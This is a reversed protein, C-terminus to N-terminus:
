LIAMVHSKQLSTGALLGREQNEGSVHGDSSKGCAKYKATFLAQKCDLGSWSAFRM